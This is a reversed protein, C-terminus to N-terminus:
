AITSLICKQLTVNKYWYFTHNGINAVIDLIVEADEVYPFWRDLLSKEFFTNM